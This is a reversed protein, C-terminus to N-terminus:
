LSLKDIWEPANKRLWEVYKPDPDLLEYVSGSSTTVVRGNISKINSTVITKGDPFRSKTHGYVKGRVQLRRLEPALYVDGTFVMCWNKITTM